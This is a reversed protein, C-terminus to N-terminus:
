SVVSCEPSFPAVAPTSAPLCFLTRVPSPSAHIYSSMHFSPLSSSPILPSILLNLPMPLPIHTFPSSISPSLHCPQLQFNTILNCNNILFLTLAFLSTLGLVWYFLINLFSSLTFGSGPAPLSFLLSDVPPAGGRQVEAASRIVGSGVVSEAYRQIEQCTGTILTRLTVAPPSEGTPNAKEAEAGAWGVALGLVLVYTTTTLFFRAVACGGRGCGSACFTM